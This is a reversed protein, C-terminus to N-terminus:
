LSKSNIYLIPWNASLQRCNVSLFQKYYETGVHALFPRCEIQRYRQRQERDVFLDVPERQL